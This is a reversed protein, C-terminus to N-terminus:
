PIGSLGLPGAGGEDLHGSFPWNAFRVVEDPKLQMLRTHSWEKVM